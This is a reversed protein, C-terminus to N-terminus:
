YIKFERYREGEWAAIAVALVLDDYDGERWETLWDDAVLKTKRKFTVLELVLTHAEPLTPAV